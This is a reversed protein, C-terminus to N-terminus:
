LVIVEKKNIVINWRCDSDRDVLNLRQLEKLRRKASSYDVGIEKALESSTKGCNKLFQLYKEKINSIIIKNQNRLIWYVTSKVNFKQIIEDKKLIALIDYIRAQSRNLIKSLELSTYPDKLLILLRNKIYNDPYHIEKYSYYMDWFKEKKIPHLDAIRIDALIDWNWKGSIIYTREKINYKYSIKFYTLIKEILKNPKGQAIRITRQSHTGGKLNGEGAFYGMLLYKYLKKNEKVKEVIEKWLCILKTSAIRYIFYPKKARKDIYYKKICNLNLTVKEKYKSYIYIRPHFRYNRFINEITTSFFEILLNCNNTFTIERKTKTDGEALWLGVCKSIDPSIKIKSEM